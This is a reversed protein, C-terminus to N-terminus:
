AGIGPLGTHARAGTPLIGGKARDDIAQQMLAADVNPRQDAFGYVLATDCLQNVIRPVGGSAAHVLDVAEPLILGSDGGAVGLRHKVYERTDDHSMSSLHYDAGIRQAFQSMDDRRLTARLEPQGVLFTQLVLHKDANLNSLVRLDELLDADLNQAEDVILILRRRAGYEKVIFDTFQRYLTADDAGQTDLGFAGCVWPLLRGMRRSTNSMLGVTVRNGMGALLHRVLLSKGSGVEGTLLTFGLGSEVGYRLLTLAMSHQQSLYLFAPDPRLTFPLERLKYHSEYM